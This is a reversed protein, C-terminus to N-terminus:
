SKIKFDAILPLHDSPTYFNPLSVKRLEDAKTLEVLSEKNPPPCTSLLEFHDAQYLIYDLCGEFCTTINTLEEDPHCNTLNLSHKISIGTSIKEEPDSYILCARLNILSQRFSGQTIQNM